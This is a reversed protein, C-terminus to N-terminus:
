RLADALCPWPLGYCDTRGGSGHAFVGVGHRPPLSETIGRSEDIAVVSALLQRAEEDDNSLAFGRSPGVVLDALHGFGVLAIADFRDVLAAAPDSAAAPTGGDDGRFPPRGLGDTSAMPEPLFQWLEELRMLTSASLQVPGAGIRGAFLLLAGRELSSSLHDLVVDPRAQAHLADAVLIAHCPAEANWDQLDGVRVDIAEGLCALEIRGRRAQALEEDVDLVQMHIGELGQAHLATVLRAEADPLAGGLSRLYIAEPGPTGLHAVLRRALFDAVSDAEAEELDAVRADRWRGLITPLAPIRSLLGPARVPLDADELAEGPEAVADEIREEVAAAVSPVEAPTQAVAQAPEAERSVPLDDEEVDMEADVVAAPAEIPEAEAPAEFAAAPDHEPEASAPEVAVTRSPERAPEVAVTRNPERAPESAAPEAAPPDVPAASADEPPSPAPAASPDDSPSSAPAARTWEAQALAPQAPVKLQVRQGMAEEIQGLTNTLTAIRSERRAVKDLLVSKDIEARELDAELAEIRHREEQLHEKVDVLQADRTSLGERTVRLHEERAAIELDRAQLTEELAAQASRLENNEAQLRTALTLAERHQAIAAETQEE